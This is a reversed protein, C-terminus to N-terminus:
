KGVRVGLEEVGVAQFTGAFPHALVARCLSDEQSAENWYNAM